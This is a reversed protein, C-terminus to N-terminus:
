EEAVYGPSLHMHVREKVTNFADSFGGFSLDAFSLRLM